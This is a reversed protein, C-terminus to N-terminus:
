SIRFDKTQRDYGRSLTVFVYTLLVLILILVNLAKRIKVKVKTDFTMDATLFWQQCICVKLM